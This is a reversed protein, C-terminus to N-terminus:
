LILITFVLVLRLTPRATEFPLPVVAGFPALIAVLWLSVSSLSPPLLKFTFVASRAPLFASFYNALLISIFVLVLQLAPPSRSLIVAFWLSVSTPSLQLFRFTLVANPAPL